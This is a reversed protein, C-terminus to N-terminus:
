EDTVGVKIFHTRLFYLNMHWYNDLVIPNEREYEQYGDYVDTVLYIKKRDGPIVDDEWDSTDSDYNFMYKEGKKPPTNANDIENQWNIM